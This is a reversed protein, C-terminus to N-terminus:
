CLLKLDATKCTNSKNFMPLILEDCIVSLIRNQSSTYEFRQLFQNLTTRLSPLDLMEKKLEAEYMRSRYLFRQTLVKQPNEFVEKATGQEYIGQEALFIVKSAINKAFRMEHTVVISTM